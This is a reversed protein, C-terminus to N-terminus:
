LELEPDLIWIIQTGRQTTFRVTRAQLDEASANGHPVPDPGGTDSSAVVVPTPIGTEQVVADTAPVVQAAEAVVEVPPSTERPAEEVTMSNAQRGVQEPATSPRPSIDRLNWGLAVLLVVGAAVAAWRWNVPRTATAGEDVTELIEQRLRALEQPGLSEQGRAPDGRRLLELLRLDDDMRPTTM